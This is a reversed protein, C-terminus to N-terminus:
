HRRLHEALRVALAVVTFTSHAQGSTVFASSSVVYLDDYGHVALNRDLVGDEPRESMRTLGVQHFGGRIQRRVAGELDDDVFELEGIRSARLHRDLREEARIVNELEAADVRLHTELRPMGLADVETSLEVRSEYHPLHEGHYFLNYVNADNQVTFGPVKRGPRLYREYGFRIGFAAASGLGRAVNRVHQRTSREPRRTHLERVSATTFRSGLPSALLLYVLSLISSGHSPDGLEPNVIWMALNPLREAALLEPSFSFRRRVYVGDADLEHGHIVPRKFRVRAINGEVHGMYWHGLHRRSPESLGPERRESAMLLRTTDLGGCALVYRRARITARKGGLTRAELRDVSSRREAWVVATCTLGTVLRVHPSRRLEAGYERAFNTPLSWRELSTARVDGNQMGPVLAASRLRDVELADFEARGCRLWDSAREFHAAVEEYGIPWAAGGVIERPEFDLPDLPVCRGGWIVSAGGLQRRAARSMPFSYPDRRVVEALRQIEPDFSDRGSEIVVVDFGARALELAVVTGAPGSGVVAVDADLHAEETLSASDIQM